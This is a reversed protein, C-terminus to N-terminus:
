VDSVCNSPNSSRTNRNLHSTSDIFSNFTQMNSCSSHSIRTNDTNNNINNNNASSLSSNCRNFSCSSSSSNNDVNLHDPHHISNSNSNSNTNATANTNFSNINLLQSPQSTPFIALIQDPRTVTISEGGIGSSDSGGGGGNDNTHENASASAPSASTNQILHAAMSQTLASHNSNSQNPNSFLNAPPATPTLGSDSSSAGLNFGNLNIIQNASVVFGYHKLIDLKCMPCTRHELLWPDLCVKHFEHRYNNNTNHNLNNQLFNLIFCISLISYFPM